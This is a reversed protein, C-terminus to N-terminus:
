RERRAKSTVQDKAREAADRVDSTGQPAASRTTDPASRADARTSRAAGALDARVVEAAHRAEAALDATAEKLEAQAREPKVKTAALRRQGILGLVGAVLLLFLTVLGFSAAKPLGLAELGWAATTLLFGIAYLSVFGAAVLLASARAAKAMGETLEQRALLVEQRVLTSADEALGRVLEGTSPEGDPPAPRRRAAPTPQARQEM